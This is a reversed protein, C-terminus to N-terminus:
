SIVNPRYGIESSQEASDDTGKLCSVNRVRESRIHAARAWIRANEHHSFIQQIGKMNKNPYTSLRVTGRYRVYERAISHGM